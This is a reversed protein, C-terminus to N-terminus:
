KQIGLFYHVTNKLPSGKHIGANYQTGNHLAWQPGKHIDIEHVLTNHQFGRVSSLIKWM